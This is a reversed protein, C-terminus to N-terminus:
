FLQSGYRQEAQAEPHKVKAEIRRMVLKQRQQLGRMECVTYLYNAIDHFRIGDCFFLGASGPSEADKMFVERVM